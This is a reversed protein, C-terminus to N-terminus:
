LTTYTLIREYLPFKIQSEPDHTTVIVCETGKLINNSLNNMDRMPVLPHVDNTSRKVVFNGNKSAEPTPEPLENMNQSGM